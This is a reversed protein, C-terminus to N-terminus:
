CWSKYNLFVNVMDFTAIVLYFIKSYAIQIITNCLYEFQSWELDQFISRVIQHFLFFGILGM